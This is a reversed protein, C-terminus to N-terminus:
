LGLCEAEVEGPQQLEPQAEAGPQAGAPEEDVLRDLNAGLGDALELIKEAPRRERGHGAWTLYGGLQGLFQGL